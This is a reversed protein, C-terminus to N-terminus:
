FFNGRTGPPLKRKRPADSKVEAHDPNKRKRLVNQEFSKM